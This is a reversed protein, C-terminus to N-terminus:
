VTVGQPIPLRDVRFCTADGRYQVAEAVHKAKLHESAGLNAISRAIRLVAEHQGYTLSLRRLVMKM